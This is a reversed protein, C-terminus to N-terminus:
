TVNEKFKQDLIQALDRKSSNAEHVDRLSHFDNTLAHDRLIYTALLNLFQKELFWFM